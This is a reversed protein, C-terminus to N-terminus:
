WPSLISEKGGERVNGKLPSDPPVGEAWTRAVLLPPSEHKRTEEGALVECLCLGAGEPHSPGGGGTAPNPSASIPSRLSSTEPLGYELIGQQNNERRDQNLPVLCLIM